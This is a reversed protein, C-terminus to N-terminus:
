KKLFDNDELIEMINNVVITYWERNPHIRDDQNYKQNLAVWELLFPMFDLKYEKALRPYMGDYQTRYEAGM